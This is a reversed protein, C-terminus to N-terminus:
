FLLQALPIYSGVSLLYFLFTGTSLSPVLLPWFTAIGRASWLLLVHAMWGDCIHSRRVYDCLHLHHPLPHVKHHVGKSPPYRAVEVVQDM